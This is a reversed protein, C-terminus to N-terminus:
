KSGAVTSPRKKQVGSDQLIPGLEIISLTKIVIEAVASRVALLYEINGLLILSPIKKPLTLKVECNDSHAQVSVKISYGSTEAAGEFIGPVPIANPPLGAYYVAVGGGNREEAHLFFRISPAEIGHHMKNSDSSSIGMRLQHPSFGASEALKKFENKETKVKENWKNPFVNQAIRMTNILALAKELKKRGLGTREMLNNLYIEKQTQRVAERSKPYEEVMCALSKSEFGPMKGLFFERNVVTIKSISNQNLTAQLVSPFRGPADAAIMKSCM